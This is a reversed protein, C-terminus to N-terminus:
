KFIKKSLKKINKYLGSKYMALTLFRRHLKIPFFIEFEKDFLSTMSQNYRLDFNESHGNDILVKFKQNTDKHIGTGDNGKNSIKSIKPYIVLSDNNRFRGYDCKIAWVDNIGEKAGILVSIKDKGAKTFAQKAKRDDLFKELGELNWDIKNWRDIWTAWGWSSIRHAGYVDSELLRISLFPPSYGSIQFIRTDNKFYKLANNMYKLFNPSSVLDDELVIATQYKKITSSVGDIISRALGKNETAEEIIINKFGTIGRIYQRVELVEEFDNKNAPADSFIFLVSDKALTNRKLSELTEKTHNLRKYVFLIIPALNDVEINNEKEQM